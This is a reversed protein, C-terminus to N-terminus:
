VGEITERFASIEARAKELHDVVAEGAEAEVEGLANLLRALRGHDPPRNRTALTDLQGAIGSLREAHAEDTAHTAAATVHEAAAELRERAM